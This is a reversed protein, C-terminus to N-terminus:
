LSSKFLWLSATFIVIWALMKRIFSASVYKQCAAGLYMGCIGGLGLVFGLQWDPTAAPNFFSLLAFMAVGCISTLFTSFLAAGAIAHVPLNFFSVLFPSIIAGGGVGYAGGAIGVFFALTFIPWFAVTYDTNDFRFIFNQLSLPKIIEVKGWPKGEGNKKRIKLLRIGLLLLILAAFVRFVAPNALWKVRLFAGIFVGPFTGAALALALPTLLRGERAYKWVGAPCALINFIQNTASVGPATYGLFSVQWPLLLFAGSIGAGACFFSIIFAAGFPIVPSIEVGSVAFLMEWGWQM